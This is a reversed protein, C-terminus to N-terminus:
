SCGYVVHQLSRAIPKWDKMTTEIEGKPILAINTTNLNSLFTGYELWLCGTVFIEQGCMDWFYQYFGQNPCMDVQIYFMAEEFEHFRFPATLAENGDNTISPSMANLVLYQLSHKKQFLDAFYYQAINIGNISSCM